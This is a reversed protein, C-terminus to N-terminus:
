FRYRLGFQLQFASEGQDTFGDTDSEVFRFVPESQGAGELGQGVHELLVSNTFRRLGWERNLLNLLNFVDLQAELTQSGIPIMQRL